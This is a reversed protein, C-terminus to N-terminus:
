ATRKWIYAAQYPPIISFASGSGTNSTLGVNAAANGLSQSLDYAADGFAGEVTAYTSNTVQSTSNTSTSNALFHQHSPLESTTLTVTAAGGTSTYTSGHGVIFKDTVAVWTGFGFLTAPNTSDTENIYYSGVPYVLSVVNQFSPLADAGNSVLVQGATGQSTIYDLGNDSSNQVAIAGYKNAAPTPLIDDLSSWNSNLEAGWLDEDIPDAIAPLTFNYNTTQTAM